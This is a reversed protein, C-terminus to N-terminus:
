ASVAAKCVPCSPSPTTEHFGNDHLGRVRGARDQSVAAPADTADEHGDTDVEAADPAVGSVARDPPRIPVQVAQQNARMWDPILALRAAERKDSLSMEEERRTPVAPFSEWFEPDGTDIHGEPLRDTSM